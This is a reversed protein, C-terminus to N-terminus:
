NKFFANGKLHYYAKEYPKSCSQELYKKMGLDYFQVCNPTVSCIGDFYAYFARNLPKLLSQHYPIDINMGKFSAITPFIDNQSVIEEIAKSETVVGGSLVIPIKFNIAQNIGPRDPRINGHDATIIVLTNEWNESNKFQSMLAGLCSDTYSVSNLYPNEIKQYNPVDYPEHSSLSFLMSLTPGKDAIVANGFASFVTEDHIGWPNEYQSDFDNLTRLENADKFLVGMNMFSLNGGHYFRTKGLKNFARFLNPHENLQQPFNTLTQRATSPFSTTLALLGKDSRLNSAYANTFYIGERMVRDLNPTCAYKDGSLLGSLKAVFSELVIVVVHSNSDKKLLYSYDPSTSDPTNSNTGLEELLYEAVQDSSFFSQPKNKGREFETALANWVPNLAAHNYLNNSSYFATAISNPVKGIGGRILLFAFPMLILVKWFKITRIPILLRKAGLQYVWIIAFLFALAFIYHAGEISSFGANEKGIFQTFSMNAKQGWYLQFYPDTALVIGSLIVFLLNAVSLFKKLRFKAVDSVLLILLNFLLFYGALSIDLRVGNYWITLLEKWDAISGANVALYFIRSVILLVLWFFVFRLFFKIASM